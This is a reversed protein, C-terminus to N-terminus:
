PFKLEVLTIADWTIANLEEYAADFLDTDFRVPVDFDGEWTVSDGPEGNPIEVRGSTYDVSYVTPSGGATTHVQVTGPVPKVIKRDYYLDGAAYRKYLQWAPPSGGLYAAVGQTATVTRDKHDSFRFGYARGRVAMFFDLLAKTDQLTKLGQAVDYKARVEAWEINRQEYGSALEVIRTKFGPGGKAGFAIATPFRPSELFATM